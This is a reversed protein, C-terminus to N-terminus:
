LGVFRFVKSIWRNVFPQNFVLLAFFPMYGVAYRTLTGFNPTSLALFVSLMACYLLVSLILLRQPSQFVVKWYRLSVLTLGLLVLNQLATIMKFVTNAEWVFPRFLGSIIAWPINLMMSPWSPQLDVFHIVDEPSCVGMFFENNSTIVHLVKEPAFNPHLFTIAVFGVGLVALWLLVTSTATFTFKESLRQAALASLTIPIFAALYYYKLNFIVIVSILSALIVLGSLRERMWVKLFVASLFFLGAMALSEKVVGSSWFVASPFILIAVCAAVQYQPFMRAITNSLYWAGLFSIFSYYVSIVWYNDGTLLALISTIKIFFVTRHEGLFFGEERNVLYTVYSGFDYHALNSLDTAREFFIFTDSTEYYTSYIIGLAIGALCKGILAPWFFRHLPQADSKWVWAAIMTLFLINVVALM